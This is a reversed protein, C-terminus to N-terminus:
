VIATQRTKVKKSVKHIKQVFEKVATWSEVHLVQSDFKIVYDLNYLNKKTVYTHIKGKIKAPKPDHLLNKIKSCRKIAVYEDKGM